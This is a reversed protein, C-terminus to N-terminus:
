LTIIRDRAQDFATWDLGAMNLLDDVQQFKGLQHRVEVIHAAQAGTLGLWQAITEAPASNVDVLGGDDYHRPLDPRGIRLDRAMQPDRQALARAEARKQRTALVGAIAGENPDSPPETAPPTTASWNLKSGAIASYAAGGIGTAIIAVAGLRTGLNDADDPQLGILTFGILYAITFAVAWQAAQRTRAKAAIVIPPIFGLLCCSFVPVAWLWAPASANPTPLGDARLRTMVCSSLGSQVFAGIIDSQTELVHSPAFRSEEGFM